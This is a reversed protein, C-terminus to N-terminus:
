YYNDDNENIIGENNINDNIDNNIIDPIDKNNIIFVMEVIKKVFPYLKNLSYFHIKNNLGLMFIYGLIISNNIINGYINEDSMDIIKEGNKIKKYLEETHIIMSIDNHTILGNNSLTFKLINNGIKVVNQM